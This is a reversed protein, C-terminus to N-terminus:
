WQGQIFKLAKNKLQLFLSAKKGREMFESCSEEPRVFREDAALFRFNESKANSCWRGERYYQCNACIKKM